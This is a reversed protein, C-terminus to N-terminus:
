GKEEHYLHYLVYCGAGPLGRRHVVQFDGHPVFVRSAVGFMARVLWSGTGACTTCGGVARGYRGM